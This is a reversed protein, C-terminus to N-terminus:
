CAERIFVHLLGKTTRAQSLKPAQGLHFSGEITVQALLACTDGIPVCLFLSESNPAFSLSMWSEGADDQWFAFGAPM